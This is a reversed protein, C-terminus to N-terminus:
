LMGPFYHSKNKDLKLIALITKADLIEGSEIMALTKDLSLHVNYMIETDDQPLPDHSLTRAVFFILKENCFGPVTYCEGFPIFEEAKYGTEERLERQACEHPDEADELTGAPLELLDQNIARRWQKVFIIDGKDDIPLIVVAGPHYLIDFDYTKGSSLEIKDVYHSLIKGKRLLNRELLKEKPQIPHM